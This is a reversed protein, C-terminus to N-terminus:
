GEKRDNVSHEVTLTNSLRGHPKKEKKITIYCVNVQRDISIVYQLIFIIEVIKRQRWTGSGHLTGALCFREEPRYNM